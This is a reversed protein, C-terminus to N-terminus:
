KSRQLTTLRANLPPGNNRKRRSRIM